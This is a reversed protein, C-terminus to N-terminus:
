KFLTDAYLCFSVPQSLVSPPPPPPPPDARESVVDTRSSLFDLSGRRRSGPSTERVSSAVSALSVCGLGNKQRPRRATAELDALLARYLTAAAAIADEECRCAFAHCELLRAAGPRRMVVAFIPPYNDVDKALGRMTRYLDAHRDDSNNNSLSSTPGSPRDDAVLPVFAHLLDQANQLHSFITIRFVKQYRSYCYNDIRKVKIQILLHIRIICFLAYIM